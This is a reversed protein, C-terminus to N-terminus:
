RHLHEALALRGRNWTLDIHQRVLKKRDDLSM